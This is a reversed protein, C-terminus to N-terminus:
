FLAGPYADVLVRYPALVSRVTRCPWERDFAIAGVNRQLREYKHCTVCGRHPQGLYATHEDLIELLAHHAAYAHAFDYGVSRFMLTTLPDDVGMDAMQNRLHSRVREVFDMERVQDPTLPPPGAPKIPEPDGKGRGLLIGKM